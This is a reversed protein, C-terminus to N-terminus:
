QMLLDLDSFFCYWLTLEVVTGLLKELLVANVSISNPLWWIHKSKSANCYFIFSNTGFTIIQSSHDWLPPIYKQGWKYRIIQILGRILPFPATRLYGHNDTSLMVPVNHLMLRAPHFSSLTTIPVTHYNFCLFVSLSVTKLYTYFDLVLELLQQFSKGM